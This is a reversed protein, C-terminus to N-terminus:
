SEGCLDRLQASFDIQKSRSGQTRQPLSNEKPAYIIESAPLAANIVPPERPMPAAATRINLGALAASLGDAVQNPDQALYLDGMGGHAILGKIEYRSIRTPMPSMINLQDPFRLM